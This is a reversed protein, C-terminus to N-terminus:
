LGQPPQSVVIEEIRVPQSAQWDIRSHESM